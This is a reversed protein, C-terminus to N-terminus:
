NEKEKNENRIVQLIKTETLKAPSAIGNEINCITQVSLRCMSALKSQSIDHKARFDLMEAKLDKM